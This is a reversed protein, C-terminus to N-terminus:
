RMAGPSGFWLVACVVGADADGISDSLLSMRVGIERGTEV